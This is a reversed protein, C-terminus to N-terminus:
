GYREVLVKMNWDLPINGEIGATPYGVTRYTGAFPPPLIVTADTWNHMDGKPIALTYAVHKGYLQNSRVVEDADPQAVLVNEVSTYVREFVDSNFPDKGTKVLEALQVTVGKIRSSM